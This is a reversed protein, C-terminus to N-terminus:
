AACASTRMLKRAWLHLCCVCDRARFRASCYRTHMGNWPRIRMDNYGPGVSLSSVLNHTRAFAIMGPWNRPTSGFSFGAAAFYTYFGDARVCSFLMICSHRVSWIVQWECSRRALVVDDSVLGATESRIAAM